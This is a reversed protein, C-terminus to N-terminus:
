ISCVFNSKIKKRRRLVGDVLRDVHSIARSLGFDGFLGNLLLWPFVARGYLIHVTKTNPAVAFFLLDPRLIIYIDDLCACSCHRDHSDAVVVLV